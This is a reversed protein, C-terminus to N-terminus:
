EDRFFYPRLWGKAMAKTVDAQPATESRKRLAVPLGKIAAWKARFIVGPRGKATYYALSVLNLLIHQPMYFLLSKLPMNKFYTWVLNRHGYFISFDSEQETIASGEHYAVSDRVHLCQYGALRLRFGLDIDENYCFYDEDFCGVERLAARSYIAAAACPAFLPLVSDPTEVPVGHKRRWVLGSVHYCDGQGDLVQHDKASVLESSFFAVDPNLDLANLLAELWNEAVYADPNVLAIWPKDTAAIGINNATAFGANSGTDIVKLSAFQRRAREISGDSSANDVVIIEGPLQPLAHLATLCAILYDGANYNVVIVAVDSATARPM